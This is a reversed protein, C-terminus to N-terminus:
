ANLWLVDVTYVCGIPYASHSFYM